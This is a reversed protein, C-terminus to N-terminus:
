RTSEFLWSKTKSIRQITKKTEIQNIEPRLKVIELRRSRKPSNAEKQKLAGLHATLNNTYPIVLKKVLSSLAIFKERLVAKMTEWSKLYSTDINENFELFKIIEKNIEERVM